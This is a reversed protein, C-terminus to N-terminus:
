SFYSANSAIIHIAFYVALHDVIGILRSQNNITNGRILIALPVTPIFKEVRGPFEDFFTFKLFAYKSSIYFLVFGLIYEPKYSPEHGHLGLSPSIKPLHIGDFRCFQTNGSGMNM